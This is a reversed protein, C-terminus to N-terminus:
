KNCVYKLIGPTNMAMSLRLRELNIDDFCGKFLAFPGYDVLHM